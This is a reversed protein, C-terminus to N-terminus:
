FYHKFDLMPFESMLKFELGALLWDLQQHTIAELQTSTKEM